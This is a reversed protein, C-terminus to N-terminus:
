ECSGGELQSCRTPGPRLPSRDLGSSGKETSVAYVTGGGDVAVYPSFVEGAEDAQFSWIREGSPSFAQISNGHACFVRGQFGLVPHCSAGPTSGAQIKWKLTGDASVAALWSGGVYATGDAGLAIAYDNGIPWDVDLTWAPEGALSLSFIRSRGGAASDLAGFLIRGASDVVPATVPRFPDTRFEWLAHGDGDLATLGAASPAYYVIGPGEAAALWAGESSGQEWLRMGNGDFANLHGSAEGQEPRGPVILMEDETTLPRGVPDSIFDGTPLSWRVSADQDMRTLAGFGGVVALGTEGAATVAGSFRPGNEGLLTERASMVWNLRGATKTDHSALSMAALHNGGTPRANASWMVLYRDSQDAPLLTPLRAGYRSDGDPGVRSLRPQFDGSRLGRRGDIRQGFIETEGEGVDQQWVALFEGDAGAHSVAPRSGGVGSNMPISGFGLLASTAADVRRGLIRGDAASWVVLCVAESPACSVAPPASASPPNEEDSTSVTFKGSPLPAGTAADVLVAEIKSGTDIESSGQWVVLIEGSGWDYSLDPNMSPSATGTASRGNLRVPSGASVGNATIRQGFVEFVGDQSTDAHWVLFFQGSGSLYAIRPRYAGFAPNADPGTHTIRFDDEGFAAGTDGDLFRGYLEFKGDMSKEGSWVVLYRNGVPDYAVGPDTAQFRPDLEPGMRSIRFEDGIPQLTAADLRRGYIEYEGFGAIDIAYVALYENRPRNLAFSSSVVPSPYLDGTVMTRHSAPLGLRSRYSRGEVGHTDVIATYPGDRPIFFDAQAGTETDVPTGLQDFLMIRPTWSDYDLSATTLHIWSGAGASFRIADQQVLSTVDREIVAGDNLEAACRGTTFQLSVGYTDPHPMDFFSFFGSLILTQTGDEQLVLSGSDGSPSWGLRNGGPGFVELVPSQTISSELGATIRLAEGASGEFSYAFQEARMSVPGQRSNECDIPAACKGTTFQLSLAYRGTEEDLYDRVELIYEGGVPLKIPGSRPSAISKSGVLEGSSDLVLVQLQLAADISEGVVQIADGRSGQFRYLDHEGATSIAAEVRDGCFLQTQAQVQRGTAALIICVGVIAFLYSSPKM